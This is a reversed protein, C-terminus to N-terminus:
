NSFLKKIKVLSKTVNSRPPEFVEFTITNSYNIKEVLKVVRKFDIKGNGVSLHEDQKGHNDHFHFHIIRDSFYNIFEEVTRMGGNAFAHGIDIHIAVKPVRDAIYKFNKFYVIENKEAANEFMLQIGIKKGFVLIEDLSKVYNDLVPKLTEQTRAYMGTSHSHVTFKECGLDKAIRMASKTEEVWGLRVEELPSGLDAWWAFHAVPPYDFLKLAKKIEAKRLELIEPLNFPGEVAIEVYDCGLKKITKIEEVIDNMPNTLNGFLIM